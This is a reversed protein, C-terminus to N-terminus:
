VTNELNKDIVIKMGASFVRCESFRPCFGTSSGTTETWFICWYMVILLLILWSTNLINDFIKDTLVKVAWWKKAFTRQPGLTRLSYGKKPASL